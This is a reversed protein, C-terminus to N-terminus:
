RVMDSWIKYLNYEVFTVQDIRSYKTEYQMGFNEISSAQFLRCQIRETFYKKDKMKTCLLNKSMKELNIINGLSM